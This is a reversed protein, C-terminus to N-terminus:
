YHIVIIQSLIELPKLKINKFKDFMHNKLVCKEVVVKQMNSWRKVKANKKPTVLDHFNGNFFVKTSIKSILPKAINNTDIKKVM